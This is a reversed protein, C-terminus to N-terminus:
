DQKMLVQKTLLIARVPYHDSPLRTTDAQYTDTLIDFRKVEFHNSVFLHDIRSDGEPHLEYDNFTVHNSAKVIADEYADKLLDSHSLVSYGESTQDMNFDGALIVPDNGCLLKIKQLVQKASELRAVKGMHDMHLNFFWFSAGKKPQFKAWTCVRPLAADWGVNPMSDNPSLWFTGSKLLEFKNKKFLIPSFEGKDKGDDRAVGVYAYDPLGMLLDKLQNEVVEQAGFVDFDHTRILKVVEPRRVKWGNGNADDTRNECRINYSAVNLSQGFAAFSTLLLLFPLTKM